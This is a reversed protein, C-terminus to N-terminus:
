SIVSKIVSSANPPKVLNTHLLDYDPWYDPQINAANPLYPVLIQRNMMAFKNGTVNLLFRWYAPRLNHPEVVAAHFVLATSVSYIIIDACKIYPVLGKSIGKFYLIEALKFAAYLAITQSKYWLMSWGALFGAVMGHLSDDKDRLWRLLCNVARFIAVFCGLFAGLNFNDKHKIAQLLASPRRVIKTLSGLVKVVGQIGYGICFNRLLGKLTYYICSNKHQCLRHKRQDKLWRVVTQISKNQKIQHQFGNHRVPVPEQKETEESLATSPLEEIGILKSFTSLISKPLSNKRFLYLYGASAISFLIVEGHPVPKFWGRAVVMRYLTETAINAMYLALLGRRSKRELLIAVYSATLAPVFSISLYYFHGILKRWLCFFTIFLTGNTTLFITSRALQAPFSKLFYDKNKRQIVGAIAYLSGYVKVAQKFVEFMVDLSAKKCSPTWTHGLEYCTCTIKSTLPKGLVAM